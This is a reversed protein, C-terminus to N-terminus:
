GQNTVTRAGRAAALLARATQAGRTATSAPVTETPRPTYTEPIHGGGPRKAGPPVFGSPTPTVPIDGRTSRRNHGNLVHPAPHYRGNFRYTNTGISRWGRETRTKRPPTVELRGADHLERVYRSVQRVSCGLRRALYPRGCERGGGQKSRAKRIISECLRAGRSIVTPPPAAAAARTVRRHRSCTASSHVSSVVLLPCAHFRGPPVEATIVGTPRRESRRTLRRAGIGRFLNPAHDVFPQPGPIVCSRADRRTFTRIPHSTEPTTRSAKVMRPWAAIDHM